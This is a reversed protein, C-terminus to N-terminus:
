GKLLVSIASEPDGELWRAVYGDPRVLVEGGHLQAIAFGHALPRAPIDAPLPRGVVGEDDSYVAPEALRGSNV